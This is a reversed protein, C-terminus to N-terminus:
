HEPRVTSGAYGAVQTIIASNLRSIGEISANTLAAKVVTMDDPDVRSLWKEFPLEEAPDIGFVDLGEGSWNYVGEVPNWEWSAINAATQALLLQGERDRLAAKARASLREVMRTRLHISVAVLILAAATM